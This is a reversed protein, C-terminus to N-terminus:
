SSRRQPLTVIFETFEGEETEFRITGDHGKVIIDRSLSLGLGTGEGAQKTTFFADYVRAQIAKPIGVGNDRIRLEVAGGLNRTAIRIRPQFGPGAIKSKASLAHCANDLLNLVVRGIEQPVLHMKGITSDFETAIDCSLPPTRARMSHYTLGVYNGLMGNLDIEQREGRGSRFHELMSRIIGGMRSGHEHIRGLNVKLLRLADGLANVGAPPAAGPAAQLEALARYAEDTLRISLQTFNNVFNLPNRLEHAIGASLSGLAALRDQMIMREQAERLQRLAVALEENRAQLEQTRLEVKEELTRYLLANEISIVAQASLLQLIRIRGPTFVGPLLNNELYLVGLAGGPRRLPLCLVSRVGRRVIDPDDRFQPHAAADDLVLSERTRGVYHIIAGPLGPHGRHELEDIPISQLILPEDREITKQVEVVWRGERELLLCGAQAGGTEILLGMLRVLLAPLELERSIAQSANLVSVLDLVNFDSGDVMAATLTTAGLSGTAMRPLVYPHQQELAKAKNHAGWQLYVRHAQRLYTRAPRFDQRELLCRAALEYAIAEEHLYGSQQALRIAREFGRRAAEFQGLVRAREAEILALRHDHSQPCHPLWTRLRTVHGEVSSLIREREEPSAQDYVALQGLSALLSYPGMFFTTSVITEHRALIAACAAAQEGAGFLYCLFLKCFYHNFLSSQDHAALHDAVRAEDYFSGTLLTPEPREERLNQVAQRYAQFWNLVLKQRTVEIVEAYRAMDESVEALADGALFRNICLTTAGCALNFPHAAEVAYRYAELLFPSLHQLPEKWHILYAHAYMSVTSLFTKDGFREALALAMRGLRYAREIDGQTALLGGYFTYGSSSEVTNGHRLSLQVMRGIIVASLTGAAVTAFFMLQHLVASAARALPDECRPLDLLAEVPRDGLLAATARLESAVDEPTPERPLEVGLRQLIDLYIDIAERPRQEAFCIQGQLRRATLEDLVGRAHRLIPRSLAAVADFDGCLFAAEAGVGHLDLMLAYRRQWDGEEVLGLGARVLGLAQQAAAAKLAKRAARLNLHALEDLTDAEVISARGQNLQGVIDFLRQERAEPSLSRWLRQGVDRHLLVREREDVLSIVAQQIRDHAFQCRIEGRAELEVASHVQDLPIVLGEMVADWLDRGTSGDTREAVLGLTELDFQSGLCAALKLVAQTPQPLRQIRGVMLDVVNDTVGRQRLRDLDWHWRGHAFQLLGEAHLSALFARVFFPNGGTRALLLEALPTVKEPPLSLAAGLLATVEDLGLPDLEIRRVAAGQEEIQRLTLLLPHADQVENSRYAAILLLPLERSATALEALLQLSDVDAWQLDDLFLCLPREPETFLSIFARVVHHFRTRADAPPLTPPEPQPGLVLALAPCVEVLVGVHGGLRERIRDRWAALHEEKETLIQETLRQFAQLFARYPTSRPYQEFKGATFYGRRSTLPRYLEQILVSKGIGSYGSVTMLVPGRRAEELAGLLQEIPVERGYLTQPLRFRESHDQEGLAFAAIAGTRDLAELCRELDAQLGRLSQYREDASKALLKLVIAALAEPVEPRLERPSLPQRAIHKHVLELADAGHFPCRGTLLEYFTVGLSYYDTREDLSRNMRGTQEPSMYALTGELRAPNAFTTREQSLVTAIGFDILEIRGSEPNLVWNTPNIDKHVIRRQHVRQLIGVMKLALRLFDGFPLRGALGLAALSSGGGDELLLGWHGADHVLDCARVVGEVDLGRLLAYEHQLASVQAAATAAEGLIKLIIPLGDTVRRGRYVVTSSGVHLRELIQCGGIQIM